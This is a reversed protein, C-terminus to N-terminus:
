AALAPEFNRALHEDAIRRVDDVACVHQLKERLAKAEPMNRSYAMLRSRMARMAPDEAGWM